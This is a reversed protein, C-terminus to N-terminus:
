ALKLEESIEENRVRDLKTLGCSRKRYNMEM